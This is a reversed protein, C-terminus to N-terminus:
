DPGRVEVASDVASIRGWRHEVLDHVAREPPHHVGRLIVSSAVRRVVLTNEHSLRLRNTNTHSRIRVRIRVREHRRHLHHHQRIRQVIRRIKPPKTQAQNGPVTKPVTSSDNPSNQRAKWTNTFKDILM